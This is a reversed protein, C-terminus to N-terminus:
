ALLNGIAGKQWRGKGSITPVGDATKGGTQWSMSAMPARTLVGSSGIRSSKPAVIEPYGQKQYGETKDIKIVMSVEM